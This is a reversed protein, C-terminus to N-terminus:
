KKPDKCSGSESVKQDKSHWHVGNTVYEVLEPWIAAWFEIIEEDSEALRRVNSYRGDHKGDDKKGHIYQENSM